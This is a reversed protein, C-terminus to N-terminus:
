GRGTPDRRADNLDVTNAAVSDIFRRQWLAQRGDGSRGIDQGAGRVMFALESRRSVGVKRFVNALTNRVTNPSTGLLRAAEKNTLGRVVLSMTREEASTLSWPGGAGAGPYDDAREARLCKLRLAARVHPFLAELRARERDSFSSRSRTMGVGWMRGDAVWSRAIFERQRNPRIFERYVSIRERRPAAFLETDLSFRRSLQEVEGPVMEQAYRWFNACLVSNDEKQGDIVFERGPAASIISGLDCEVMRDIANMVLQGLEAACSTEAVAEAIEHSAEWVERDVRGARRNTM